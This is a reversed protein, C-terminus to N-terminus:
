YLALACTRFGYAWLSRYADDSADRTRKLLDGAEKRNDANPEDRFAELSEIYQTRFGLFINYWGWIRILETEEGPPMPVQLAAVHMRRMIANTDKYWRIGRNPDPLPPPLEGLAEAESSASACIPEVQAIYESKTLGSTTNAIQTSSTLSTSFSSSVPTQKSDDQSWQKGILAALLTFVGAVIAVGLPSKWFQKSEREEQM